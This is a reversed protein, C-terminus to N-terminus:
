QVEWPVLCSAKLEGSKWVWRGLCNESCLAENILAQEDLSMKIEAASVKDMLDKQISQFMKELEERSAKEDSLAALDRSKAKQIIEKTMDEISSKTFTVHNQLERTGAKNDVERIVRDITERLSDLDIKNAKNDVIKQLKHIDVKSELIENVDEINCKMALQNNLYDQASTLNKQLELKTNLLRNAIENQLDNLASQVESLEVKPELLSHIDNKYEILDGKRVRQSIENEMKVRAVNWEDIAKNIEERVGKAMSDAEKFIIEKVDSRIRRAEENMDRTSETVVKVDKVCRELKQTLKNYREYIEEESNKRQSVMEDRTKKIKELLSSKVENLMESMTDIDAKNMITSGMGDLDRFDAKKSLGANFSDIIDKLENDIRSISSKLHLEINEIRASSIENEKVISNYVRKDISENSPSGRSNLIEHIEHRDTKNEIENQIQHLDSINAKENLKAVLRKFEDIDVKQALQEDVEGKNAKRHLAQAVTPKNAKTNLMDNLYDVNPKNSMEEKVSNIEQYFQSLKDSIEDYFQNMQVGIDDPIFNEQRNINDSLDHTIKSSNGAQQLRQDIMKRVQDVTPRDGIDDSIERMSKKLDKVNVKSNMLGHIDIKNAKMPLANEMERISAAHASVVKYFATLTLKVIEQVGTWESESNLLERVISVSNPDSDLDSAGKSFISQSDLNKNGFSAIPRNEQDERFM